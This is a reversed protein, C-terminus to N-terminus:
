GTRDLGRQNSLAFALLRVDPKIHIPFTGLHKPPLGKHEAYTDLPKQSSSPDIYANLYSPVFAAMRLHQEVKRRTSRVVVKDVTVRTHRHGLLAIDCEFDSLVRELTLAHGGALRGGGYGHHCYISYRMASPHASELSRRFVLNVFGQVGLALDTPACGAAQSIGKVISWYVNNGYFKLAAEEHNGLVLEVCQAAIPTLMKVVYDVQADMLDDEGRLWPAIHSPKYRKDGLHCIADIYDGGGIWRANPDAAIAEIDRKLLREECNIAGVHLDTLYYLTFTDSRSETDVYRWLSQM